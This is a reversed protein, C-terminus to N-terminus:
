QRGDPTPLGLLSMFRAVAEARNAVRLKRLISNVHFKVTTDSLVLRDAIARNTCGDALLRMVDLERRTLLGSLVLRDDDGSTAPAAEILQSPVMPPGDPDADLSASLSIPADALSASLAAVRDVFRRLAEREARLARRLEASEALQSLAGAFEGLVDRDLVDVSHPSGRDAHIMGVVSAGSQVPAVVYSRWGVLEAVRRDVRANLEVGGVLTARRRRVVEGEVSQHDLRFGDAQLQARLREATDADTESDAEDSRVSVEIPMLTNDQILSLIALRFPTGETLAHPARRLLESTSSFRRLRAAADRGKALSAFRLAFREHLRNIAEAREGASQHWGLEALQEEVEALQEQVM